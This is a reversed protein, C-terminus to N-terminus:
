LDQCLAYIKCIRLLLSFQIIMEQECGDAVISACHPLGIFGRASGVYGASHKLSM